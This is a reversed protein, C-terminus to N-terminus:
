LFCVVEKKRRFPTLLMISENGGPAYVHELVPSIGRLFESFCNIFITIRTLIYKLDLLIRLYTHNFTTIDTINLFDEEFIM